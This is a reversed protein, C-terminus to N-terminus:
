SGGVTGPSPQDKRLRGFEASWQTMTNLISGSLPILGHRRALAQHNMLSRGGVFVPVDRIEQLEGFRKRISRSLVFSVGVADPQLTDVAKRLESIPLDVGLPISRWGSLELMISVILVGGEHQEGQLAAVLARHTPKSNILRADHLSRGLTRLIMGTALHEQYVEATGDFWREGVEILAPELVRGVLGPIGSGAAVELVLADAKDIEGAFLADVLATAVTATSSRSMDDPMCEPKIRGAKYATILEGIPRGTRSLEAIRRLVHVQEIGYRRQNSASRHPVPFGYRREWVRLAHCSIGTLKSVAAISHLPPDIKRAMSRDM